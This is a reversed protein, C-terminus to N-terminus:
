KTPERRGLVFNSSSYRKNDNGNVGKDNNREIKGGNIWVSIETM